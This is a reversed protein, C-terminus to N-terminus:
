RCAEGKGPERRPEAQFLMQYAFLGPLANAVLQWAPRFHGSLSGGFVPHFRTVRYGSEEILERASDPTFFRLHTIDLTGWPAYEFRGCLLRFRTAWHVVNPLSIILTGANRLLPRVQRLVAGPDPLHELVDGMLIVDFANQRLESVWDGSSLDAVFVQHCFKKAQAAADSDVEVGVVRCGQGLLHRSFFGTSCGLELVDKGSGVWELLLRNRHYRDGIIDTEYRCSSLSDINWM